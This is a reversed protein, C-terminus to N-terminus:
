VTVLRHQIPAEYEPAGLIFAGGPPRSNPFPHSQAEFVPWLWKRGCKIGFGWKVM